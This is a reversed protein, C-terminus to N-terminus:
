FQLFPDDLLERATAREEPDWTLMRKLFALLENRSKEDLLPLSDEIKRDPILQQHLFKGDESFFPGDYLELANKALKGGPFHIECPWEYVLAQHSREIFEPSPMGLLSIMEALHSKANYELDADQAQQFLETGHSMDWVLVGLNWIDASRNWPFGLTVEPARYQSAQIPFIGRGTVGHLRLSSGFDVIYPVMGKWSDRLVGFDNNRRFVHRGMSDIRYEAPKELEENLFDSMVEVEEFSM